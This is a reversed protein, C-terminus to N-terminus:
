MHQSGPIVAQGSVVQLQLVVLVAGREEYIPCAIWFFFFDDNEM